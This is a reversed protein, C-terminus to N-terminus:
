GRGPRRREVGAKIFERRITESTVGLADAVNELSLEDKEYCEVARRVQEDTLKRMKRRTPVGERREGWCVRFGGTQHVGGLGRHQCEGGEGLCVPLIFRM